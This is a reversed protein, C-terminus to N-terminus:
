RVVELEDLIATVTRVAMEKIICGDSVALYEEAMDPDLFDWCRGYHKRMIDKCLQSRYSEDCRDLIERKVLSLGEGIARMDQEGTGRLGGLAIGIALAGGTVAGCSGESTGGVGASLMCLGPFLREAMAEPIVERGGWRLADVIALFTCQCCGLYTKEYQGALEEAKRVIDRRTKVLRTM